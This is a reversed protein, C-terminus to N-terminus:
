SITAGFGSERIACCFCCVVTSILPWIQSDLKGSDLWVYFSDTFLVSSGSMANFNTFVHCMIEYADNITYM